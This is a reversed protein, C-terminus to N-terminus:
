TSGLRELLLFMKRGRPNLSIKVDKQGCMNILFEKEVLTTVSVMLQMGVTSCIAMLGLNVKLDAINLWYISTVM